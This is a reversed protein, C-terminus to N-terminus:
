VWQELKALEVETISKPREIHHLLRDMIKYPLKARSYGMGKCDAFAWKMYGWNQGAYGRVFHDVDPKNLEDWLKSELKAMDVPKMKKVLMEVIEFLIYSTAKDFKDRIESCKRFSPLWAYDPLGAMAKAFNIASNEFRTSKRFKVIENRAFWARRPALQKELEQRKEIARDLSDKLRNTENTLERVNLKRATLSIVWFFPPLLPAVGFQSIAAMLATTAAAAKGYADHYESYCRRETDDADKYREKLLDLERKEVEIGGAELLCAAPQQDLFPRWEEVRPVLRLIERIKDPKSVRQLEWGIRGWQTELFYKLDRYRQSLDDPDISEPRGLKRNAKTSKKFKKRV